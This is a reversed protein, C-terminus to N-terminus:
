WRRRRADEARPHVRQSVQGQAPRCLGADGARAVGDYPLTYRGYDTERGWIALVITAPVGFRAEIGDARPSIEGAAAARRRGAARHESGQHLGGAGARIRGAVARRDRPTRALDPRATQLGAGARANRHRLDHALRRRGAGGAVALRHIAHLRRRRRPLPSQVVLALLLLGLVPALRTNLARERTTLDLRREIREIRVDMRDLRNSM